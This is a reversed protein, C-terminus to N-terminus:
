QRIVSVGCLDRAGAARSSLIRLRHGDRCGSRLSGAELVALFLNRHSRLCGTGPIKNCSSSHVLVFGVVVWLCVWSSGRGKELNSRQTDRIMM